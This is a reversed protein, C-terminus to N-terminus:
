FYRYEYQIEPKSSNTSKLEQEGVPIYFYDGEVIYRDYINNSFTITHEPHTWDKHYGKVIRLETDIAVGNDSGILKVNKLHIQKSNDNELTLNIDSFEGGYQGEKKFYEDFLAVFPMDIDGCNKIQFSNGNWKSITEPLKVTNSWEVYNTCLCEYYWVMSQDGDPLYKEDDLVIEFDIEHKEGSLDTYRCKLFYERTDGIPLFYISHPITHYINTDDEVIFIRKYDDVELNQKNAKIYDM